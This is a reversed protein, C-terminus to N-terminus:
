GVADGVGGVAGDDGGELLVAAEVVQAAIQGVEVLLAPARVVVPLGAEVGGRYAAVDLAGIGEDLRDVGGTLGAAATCSLMKRTM